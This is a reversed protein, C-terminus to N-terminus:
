YEMNSQKFPSHNWFDCCRRIEIHKGERELKAMAAVKSEKEKEETGMVYYVVGRDWRFSTDLFDDDTLGCVWVWKGREREREGWLVVVPSELESM